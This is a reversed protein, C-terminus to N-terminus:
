TRIGYAPWEAIITAAKEQMALERLQEWSNRGGRGVPLCVSLGSPPIVNPLLFLVSCVENVGAAMWGTLM